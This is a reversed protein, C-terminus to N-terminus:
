ICLVCVCVCVSLCLHCWEDKHVLQCHKPIQLIIESAYACSFLDSVILSANTKNTITKNAEKLVGWSCKVHCVPEKDTVRLHSIKGM